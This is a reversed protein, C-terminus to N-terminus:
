AEEDSDEDFVVGGMGFEDIAEVLEEYREYWDSATEHLFAIGQHMFGLQVFGVKGAHKRLADVRSSPPKKTPFTRSAFSKLFFIWNKTTM